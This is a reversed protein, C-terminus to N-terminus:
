GDIRPIYNRELPADSHEQWKRERCKLTSCLMAAGQTASANPTSKYNECEQAEPARKRDFTAVNLAVSAPTRRVTKDFRQLTVVSGRFRRLVTNFKTRPNVSYLLPYPVPCHYEIFPM